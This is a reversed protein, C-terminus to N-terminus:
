FVKMSTCVVFYLCFENIVAPNLYSFVFIMCLGNANDMWTRTYKLHIRWYGTDSHLMRYSPLLRNHKHIDPRSQPRFSDTHYWYTNKIYQTPYKVLVDRGRLYFPLLTIVLVGCRWLYFPLLTIVLVGCRRLYFPLLTIVLVGRGRLYFPLLTIVLVCM